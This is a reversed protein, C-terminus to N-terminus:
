GVADPGLPILSYTADQPCYLWVDGYGMVMHTVTTPLDGSSVPMPLPATYCRYKGGIESVSAAYRVSYKGWGYLVRTWTNATLTGTPM